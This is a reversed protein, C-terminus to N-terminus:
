AAREYLAWLKSIVARNQTAWHRADRKTAFRLVFEAGNAYRVAAFITATM